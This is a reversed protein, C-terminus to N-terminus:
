HQCRICAHADQQMHSKAKFSNRARKGPLFMVLGQLPLACLNSPFTKVRAQPSGVQSHLLFAYIFGPGWHPHKNLPETTDSEKQGWPCCCALSEQGEGDGPAQELEYGDLWHHWGATKDETTGKEERRWYKGADPDKGILQSKAVPLWFIPAEAEADTRGIFM